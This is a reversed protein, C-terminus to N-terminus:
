IQRRHWHGYIQLAQIQLGTHIYVSEFAFAHASIMIAQIYFAVPLVRPIKCMLDQINPPHVLTM